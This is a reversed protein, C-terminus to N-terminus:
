SRELLLTSRIHQLADQLQNLLVRTETNLGDSRRAHTLEARALHDALLDELVQQLGQRLPQVTEARHPLQHSPTSRLM